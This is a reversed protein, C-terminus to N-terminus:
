STPDASSLLDQVTVGQLAHRIAENIVVWHPRMHCADFQECHDTQEDDCCDTIAVATGELATILAELSIELPLKALRYGGKLGRVSCLLEARVMIKLVKRVSPEPLKTHQAIESASHVREPAKAMHMMVLTGYDTMRSLRLM